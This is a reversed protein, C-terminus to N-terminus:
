GGVLSKVLTMLVPALLALAYGGLASRLAVKAKEVQTPNGGATVYLIGAVTLMLTGLSALVGVAWLRVSGFFADLTPAPSDAAIAPVAGAVLLATGCALACAITIAKRTTAHEEHTPHNFPARTALRSPHPEPM